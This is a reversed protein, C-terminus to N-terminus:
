MVDPKADRLMGHANGLGQQDGQIMRNQEGQKLDTYFYHFNTAQTFQIPAFYFFYEFNQNIKAM